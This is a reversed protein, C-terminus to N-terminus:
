VKCKSKLLLTHSSLEFSRSFCLGFFLPEGTIFPLSRDHGFATASGSIKKVPNVNKSVGIEYSQVYFIGPRNSLEFRTLNM